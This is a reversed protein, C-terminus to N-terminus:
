PSVTLARADALYMKAKVTDYCIMGKDHLYNLRKPSQGCLSQHPHNANNDAQFRECLIRIQAISYFVYADLVEERGLRNFREIYANPTSKGPEMFQIKIESGCYKKLANSIFEPGNDVRIVKPWGCEEKLIELARIVHEAPFSFSPDIWLAERNHWLCGMPFTTLLM